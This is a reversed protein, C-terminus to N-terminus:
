PYDNTRGNQSFSCILLRLDVVRLPRHVGGDIKSRKSIRNRQTNDQNQEVDHDPEAEARRKGSISYYLEISRLRFDEIYM